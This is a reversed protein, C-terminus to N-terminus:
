LRLSPAYVCILVPLVFTFQALALGCVVSLREIRQSLSAETTCRIRLSAGFVFGIATVIIVACYTLAVWTPISAIGLLLPIVVLATVILTLVHAHFLYRFDDPSTNISCARNPVSLGSRM